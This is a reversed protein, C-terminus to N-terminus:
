TLETSATVRRLTVKERLRVRDSQRVQVLGVLDAAQEIVRRASVDLLQQDQGAIVGAM